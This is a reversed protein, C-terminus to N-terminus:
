AVSDYASMCEPPVGHKMMCKMRDLGSWVARKLVLRLAVLSESQEYQAPQECAAYKDRGLPGDGVGRGSERAQGRLSAMACVRAPDVSRCDSLCIYTIRALNIDNEVLLIVQTDM